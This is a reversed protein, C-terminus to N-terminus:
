QVCQTSAGRMSSSGVRRLNGAPPRAADGARQSGTREKLARAVRPHNHGVNHVCYGSDFDLIRRGGATFLESGLCTTYHVNMGLVDLLRVWQPNVFQEYLQDPASSSSAEAESM